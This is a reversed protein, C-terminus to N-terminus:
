SGRNTEPVGFHLKDDAEAAAADFFFGFIGFRRGTIVPLAEHLLSCSFMVAGGAAIDYLQRGFEPFWLRGGEYEGTNLNLSMAFQRYASLETSNDRHKGFAGADASDYCGIRLKQVKAAAFGFAKKLAPVVRRQIRDHIEGALARDDLWVDIRRKLGDSEVGAGAATVVRNREKEGAGWYDIVARCLEPEIFDPVLLVPAASRQTTPASREFIRTCAALAEDFRSGSIVAAIRFDAEFVVIGPGDLGIARALSREPDGLLSESLEPGIGLAAADARRARLNAHM